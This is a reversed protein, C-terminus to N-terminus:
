ECKEMGNNIPAASVSFFGIWIPVCQCDLDDPQRLLKHGGLIFRREVPLECLFSGADARICFTRHASIGRAFKRGISEIEHM